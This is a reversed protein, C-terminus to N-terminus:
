LSGAASTANFVCCALMYSSYQLQWTSPWVTVELRNTKVPIIKCYAYM